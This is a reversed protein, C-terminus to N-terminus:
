KTLGDFADPQIVRIKNDYLTLRTVQLYSTSQLSSLLAVVWEGQQAGLISRGQHGLHQEPQPQHPGAREAAQPRLHPRGGAQQQLACPAEAVRGPCFSQKADTLTFRAPSWLSLNGNVKLLIYFSVRCNGLYHKNKMRLVSGWDTSNNFTLDQEGCDFMMLHTIKLGM